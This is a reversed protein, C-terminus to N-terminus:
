MAPMSLTRSGARTTRYTDVHITYVTHDYLVEDNDKSFVEWDNGKGWAVAFLKLDYVQDRTAIWGKRHNNFYSEGTFLELSGFM